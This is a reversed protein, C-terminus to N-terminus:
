PGEGGDALMGMDRYYRLHFPNYIWEPPIPEGAEKLADIRAQLELRREYEAQLSPRESLARAFEDNIREEVMRAAEEVSVRGALFSHYTNNEIRKVVEPLIFPSRSRSIAQEKMAEAYVEHVGWENPFDPPRLFAETDLFEPNTPLADGSEVIMRNHTDSALYEFFRYAEEKKDSLTYLGVNGGAVRSNPYSFYPFFSASYEQPEYNRLRVLAFRGM